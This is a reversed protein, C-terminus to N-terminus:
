SGYREIDEIVRRSPCSVNSSPLQFPIDLFLLLFCSVDHFQRISERCHRGTQKFTPLSRGTTRGMAAIINHLHVHVTSRINNVLCFQTFFRGCHWQTLWLHGMSQGPISGSGGHHSATQAMARGVTQCCVAICRRDCVPRWGDAVFMVGDTQVSIGLM